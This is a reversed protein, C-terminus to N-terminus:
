KKWEVLPAQNVNQINERFTERQKILNQLRGKLEDRKFKPLYYDTDLRNCIDLIENTLVKELSQPLM